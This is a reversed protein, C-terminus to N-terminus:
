RACSEMCACCSEKPVVSVGIGSTPSSVLVFTKEVTGAFCFLLVLCHLRLCPFRLCHVHLNPGLRRWTGLGLLVFVNNLM